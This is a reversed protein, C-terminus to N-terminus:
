ISVAKYIALYSGCKNCSFTKGPDNSMDSPWKHILLISSASFMSFDGAFRSNISSILSDLLKKEAKLSM